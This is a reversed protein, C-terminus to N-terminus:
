RKVKKKRSNWEFGLFSTKEPLKEVRLVDFVFKNSGDRTNVARVKLVKYSSGIEGNKKISVMFGFANMKQIFQEELFPVGDEPEITLTIKRPKEIM